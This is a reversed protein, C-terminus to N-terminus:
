LCRAHEKGSCEYGLRTLFQLRSVENGFINFPVQQVCPVFFADGLCCPIPPLLACFAFTAACICM